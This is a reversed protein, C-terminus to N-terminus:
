LEGKRKTHKGPKELNEDLQKVEQMGAAACRAKIEEKRKTRWSKRM